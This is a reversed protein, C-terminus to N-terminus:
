AYMGAYLKEKKGEQNQKVGQNLGTGECRGEGKRGQRPPQVM